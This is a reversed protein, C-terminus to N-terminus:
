SYEMEKKPNNWFIGYHELFDLLTRVSDSFVGQINWLIGHSEAKNWQRGDHKDPQKGPDHSQPVNGAMKVAIGDPQLLKKGM